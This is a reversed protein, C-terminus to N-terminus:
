LITDQQIKMCKKSNKHKEYLINSVFTSKCHDCKFKYHYRRNHNLLSNISSYKKLCITCENENTTGCKEFHVNFKSKIIKDCKTCLNGKKRNCITKNYCEYVINSLIQGISYIEKNLDGKRTINNNYSHIIADYNNNFYKREKGTYIYYKNGDDKIVNNYVYNDKLSSLNRNINHTLNIDSRNIIKLNSKQLNYTNGDIYIISKTLDEVEMLVRSLKKFKDNIKIKIYKYITDGLKQRFVYLSFMSIFSYNEKDVIIYDDNKNNIKILM